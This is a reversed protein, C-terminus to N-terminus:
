DDQDGTQAVMDGDTRCVSEPVTPDGDGDTRELQRLFWADAKVETCTAPTEAEYGIANAAVTMPFNDYPSGGDDARAAGNFLSLAAIAALSILQAHKTM